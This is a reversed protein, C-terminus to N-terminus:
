NMYSYVHQNMQKYHNQTAIFDNEDNAMITNIYFQLLKQLTDLNDTLRNFIISNHIKYHHQFSLYILGLKINYIEKDIENDKNILQKEIEYLENNFHNEIDISHRFTQTM